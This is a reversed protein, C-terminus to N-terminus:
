STADYCRPSHDDFSALYFWLCSKLITKGSKETKKKQWTLSNPKYLIVFPIKVSLLSPIPILLYYILNEYPCKKGQRNLVTFSFSEIKSIQNM